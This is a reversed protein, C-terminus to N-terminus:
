PGTPQNRWVEHSGKAQRYFTFGFKRLKRVVDAYTYNGLQGM